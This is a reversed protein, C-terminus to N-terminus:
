ATWIELEMDIDTAGTRKVYIASIETDRVLPGYARVSTGGAGNDFCYDFANGSKESLRWSLVGSLGTTM